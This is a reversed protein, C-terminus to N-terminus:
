MLPMFLRVPAKRSDVDGALLDESTVELWQSYRRFPVGLPRRKDAHFSAQFPVPIAGSISQNCGWFFPSEITSCTTGSRPQYPAKFHVLQLGLFISKWHHQMHHRFPAPIASSIASTAAGFHVRFPTELPAKVASSFCGFVAGSHSSTSHRYHRKRFSNCWGKPDGWAVM